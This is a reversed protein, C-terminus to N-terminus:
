CQVFDVKIRSGDLFSGNLFLYALECSLVSDFSVFGYLLSALSRPDRVVLCSSVVGCICFHATLSPEDTNKALKCVFVMSLSVRKRSFTNSLSNLMTWRSTLQVDAVLNGYNFFFSPIHGNRMKLTTEPCGPSCFTSGM